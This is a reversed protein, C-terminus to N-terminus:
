VLRLFAQNAEFMFRLWLSMTAPTRRTEAIATAPAAIPAVFTNEGLCSLWATMSSAAPCSPTVGCLSLSASFCASLFRTSSATFSPRSVFSSPAFSFSLM